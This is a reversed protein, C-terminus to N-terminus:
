HSKVRDTPFGLVRVYVQETKEALQQPTFEALVMARGAEGFQRRLEPNLVLKRLADALGKSDAPPVLFGTQGDRVSECVGGVDTAVAPLKMLFGELISTGLSEGATPSLVFIDSGALIHPVDTRFGTLIVIKELGLRAIQAEIDPRSRGTGVFVFRLQHFEDKLAAAADILHTHGKEPALRGVMSVVLHEASLGLEERVNGPDVDPNFREQDPASYIPTIREAPVLGKGTLYENVQPSVTIIHSIMRGYLWRNLPHSAIPFTNHRTRIIPPRRSLGRAAFVTAWTDQSGHTHLVDFGEAEFFRRLKRVDRRISLPRFGRQLELDDFTRLGAARARRVLECDRPGSVVVEHGRKTLEISKTLVRNPQGGWAHHFNIQFIKM